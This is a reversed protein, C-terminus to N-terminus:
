RGYDGEQEEAGEVMNLVTKEWAYPGEEGTPRVHRRGVGREEARFNCRMGQVGEEKRYRQEERCVRLYDQAERRAHREGIPRCGSQPDIM